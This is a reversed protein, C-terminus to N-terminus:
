PALATLGYRANAATSSRDSEPRTLISASAASADYMLATSFPRSFTIDLIPTAVM